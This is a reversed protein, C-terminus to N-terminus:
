KTGGSVYIRDGPQGRRGLERLLREVRARDADARMRRGPPAIPSSADRCLTTALTRGTASSAKWCPMCSADAPIWTIRPSAVGARELRPGAAAILLAEVSRRGAALDTLGPEVLEEGPFRERLDTVTELHDHVDQM